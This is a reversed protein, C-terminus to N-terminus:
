RKRARWRKVHDKREWQRKQPNLTKADSELVSWTRFTFALVTANWFYFLPFDEIGQPLWLISPIIRLWVILIKQNVRAYNM